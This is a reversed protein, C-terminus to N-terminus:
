KDALADLAAQTQADFIYSEGGKADQVIEGAMENRQQDSLNQVDVPVIGWDLNPPLDRSNGYDDNYIPELEKFQLDLQYATMVGDQYTSYNQDPAYNVGCSLLACEKIGGIYPHNKHGSHLYQIRFTHPSKLFLMSDSRIPAMAQKFLRIIKMVSASETQSRPTLQFSFQFPRLQPSKFLLEMNPNMIAGTQRSLLNGTGGVAAQTLAIALGGGVEAQRKKITEGIKGVEGAADQGTLFKLGINAFAAEVPNMRSEGWDVTSDERIGGPIPMYVNGLIDRDKWGAAGGRNNEEFFEFNGSTSAKLKNPVYKLVSFKIMDQHMEALEEPYTHTGFSGKEERTGLRSDINGNVAENIVGTLETRNALITTSNTGVLEESRAVAESPEIGDKLLSQQVTSTAQQEVTQLNLPNSFIAKQANTAGGISDNFTIQGTKPNYTGIDKDLIIGPQHQWIRINGTKKDVQTWYQDKGSGPPISTKDGPITFYGTNDGFDPDKYSDGVIVKDSM